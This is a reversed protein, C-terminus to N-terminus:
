SMGGALAMTTERLKSTGLHSLQAGSPKLPRGSLPRSAAGTMFTMASSTNSFAMPHLTLAFDAKRVPECLHWDILNYLKCTM